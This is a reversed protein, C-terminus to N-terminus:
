GRLSELGGHVAHYARPFREEVNLEPNQRAHVFHVSTRPFRTLSTPNSSRDALFYVEGRMAVKVIITTDHMFMLLVSCKRSSASAALEGFGAGCSQNLRSRAPRSSPGSAIRMLSVHASGTQLLTKDKRLNPVPRYARM